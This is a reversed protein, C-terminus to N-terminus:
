VTLPRTRGDWRLHAEEKYNREWELYTQDRFGEHFFRLFHRRCRM